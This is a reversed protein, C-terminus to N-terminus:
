CCGCCCRSKVVVVVKLTGVQFPYVDVRHDDGEKVCAEPLKLRCKEESIRQISVANKSTERTNYDNINRACTGNSPAM